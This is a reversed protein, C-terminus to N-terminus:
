KHDKNSIKKNIKYNEHNPKQNCDNKETFKAIQAITFIWSQKSIIDTYIAM